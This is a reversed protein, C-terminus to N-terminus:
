KETKFFCQVIRMNGQVMGGYGTVWAYLVYQM